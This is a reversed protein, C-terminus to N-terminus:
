AAAEFLEIINAPYPRAYPTIRYAARIEATPLAWATEWPILLMPPTERGHVWATFISELLLITGAPALLAVSAAVLALFMASYNHGFQALQFASLATEHLKTTEYGATIHWLDHTQLMRANVYDLPPPLARLNLADRDLVEIDFNNDVLLHYFEHGLSGAPAAALDELRIRAPFGGAAAQAVGPYALAAAIARTQFGPSLLGALGATRATIDGAGIGRASDALLPWFVDWFADGLAEGPRNGAPIAAAGVAKGLWGAAAEDYFAAIKEPATFAAHALGAALSIAADGDGTKASTALARLAAAPIADATARMFAARTAPDVPFPTQRSDM